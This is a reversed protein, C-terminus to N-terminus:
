DWNTAYSGSRGCMLTVTMAIIYPASDAPRVHSMTEPGGGLRRIGSSQWAEVTPIRSPNSPTNLLGQSGLMSAQAALSLTRAARAKARSPRTYSTATMTPRSVPVGGVADKSVIEFTGLCRAGMDSFMPGGNDNRTIGVFESAAISRDGAKMQNRSVTVYTTTYSDTGQKPLDAARVPLPTLLLTATIMARVTMAIRGGRPQNQDVVLLAPDQLERNTPKLRAAGADSGAEVLRDGPQPLQLRAPDVPEDATSRSLAFLRIYPYMRGVGCPALRQM